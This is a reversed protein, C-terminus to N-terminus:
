ACPGPLLSLSENTYDFRILQACYFIVDPQSLVSLELRGEVARLGLGPYEHPYFRVLAKNLEVGTVTRNYAEALRNASFLVDSATKALFEFDYRAVNVVRSNSVLSYIESLTPITPQTSAARFNFSILRDMNEPINRQGSMRSLMNLLSGKQDRVLVKTIIEPSKSNVKDTIVTWSLGNSKYPTITYTTRNARVSASVKSPSRSDLATLYSINPFAQSTFQEYRVWNIGSEQLSNIISTDSIQDFARISAAPTNYMLPKGGIRYLAVLGKQSVMLSPLGSTSISVEFGSRQQKLITNDLASSFRVSANASVALAPTSMCTVINALVLIYILLRKTHSFLRFSLFRYFLESRM